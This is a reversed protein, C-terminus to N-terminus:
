QTERDFECYSLANTFSSGTMNSTGLKLGPPGFKKSKKQKQRGKKEGIGADVGTFGVTKKGERV